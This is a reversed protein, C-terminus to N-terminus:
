SLRNPGKLPSRPIPSGRAPRQGTTIPITQNSLDHRLADQYRGPGGADATLKSAGESRAAGFDENAVDVLLGKGCNSLFNGAYGRSAVVHRAAGLDLPHHRLSYPREAPKVHEDIIGADGAQRQRDDVVRGVIPVLDDRDVERGHEVDRAKGDWM